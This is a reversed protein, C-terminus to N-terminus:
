EYRLAEVPNMRSARWAPYLTALLSLTLAYISIRAVDWPEVISPLYDLNYVAASIFQVGFINQIANVVQTLHKALLVGLVVGVSTGIVGIIAGQIIFIRMITKSRMGIARLIAIDSQKENVVM